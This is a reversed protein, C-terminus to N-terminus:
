RAKGAVTGSPNDAVSLFRVLDYDAVEMCSRDCVEFRASRACKGLDDPATM